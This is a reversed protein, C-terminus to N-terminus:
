STRKQGDKGRKGQKEKLLDTIINDYTDGKRGLEKLREQTKEMVM